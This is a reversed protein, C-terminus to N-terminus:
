FYTAYSKEVVRRLDAEKFPKLLIGVIPYSNVRDLSATDEVGSEVAIPLDKYYDLDKCHQLVQYGDVKPMNLDLLCLKLDTRFNEDDLLQIAQEGDNAAIVEYDEQLFKQVFKIIMPSDDVILIKDKMLKPKIVPRIGGGGSFDIKVASTTQQTVTPTPVPAAVPQVGINSNQQIVNETSITAGNQVLISSAEVDQPTGLGLYLKAAGVYANVYKVLNPHENKVSALDKKITFAEIDAIVGSLEDFGLYRADSKLSLLDVSYENLKDAEINATMNNIKPGITDLFDKITENYLDISGLIELCKTVNIGCNKLVNVDYM